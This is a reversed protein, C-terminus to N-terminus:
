TSRLRDEWLKALIIFLAKHALSFGAMGSVVINLNKLKDYAIKESTREKYAIKDIEDSLKNEFVILKVVTVVVIQRFSVVDGLGRTDKLKNLEEQAINLQQIWFNGSKKCIESITTIKLLSECVSREDVELIVTM